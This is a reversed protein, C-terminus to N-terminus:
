MRLDARSWSECHFLRTRDEDGQKQEGTAGGVPPGGRDFRDVFHFRFRSRRRVDDNGFNPLGDVAVAVCSTHERASMVSEFKLAFRDIPALNYMVGPM